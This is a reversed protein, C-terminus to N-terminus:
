NKPIDLIDNMEMFNDADTHLSDTFQMTFDCMQQGQIPYPLMPCLTVFFNLKLTDGM